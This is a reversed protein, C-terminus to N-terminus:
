GMEHCMQLTSGTRSKTVRLQAPIRARLEPVHSVIGVVRGGERLADLTDMVDDLTEADLSGFGEDVFLTGVHTGGAEQTVVDTLGLALALSVVFTEGGSLTVPDRTEGSWDDVVRLSLGGRSEGAGRRATHELTYRHDTMQVLRENAAAVVQGLRWSLVYASLRMQLSNDASKGEVLASLEAATTHERRLPAWRALAADLEARLAHVRGHRERRSRHASEALARADAAAEAANTLAPLDPAPLDAVAAVVPDELTATAAAHAREHAAVAEDHEEVLHDTLAAALAEDTSDFGSRELVASLDGTALEVARTASDAEQQADTVAQLRAVAEQRERVLSWVDPHGALHGVLDAALAEVREALASAAAAHAAQQARAASLEETSTLLDTRARECRARAGDLTDALPTLEGIRDRLALLQEEVGALDADEARSSLSTVQQELQRVRDDHAQRVVDADDVARRAAKESAATPAGPAPSAPHPHDCSGCVPCSAGVALATAIEAAMGGLRQEQLDLWHQRQAQHHDIARRLEHRATELDASVTAARQLLDRQGELRRLDIRAEGLLRLAEAAQQAAGEAAALDQPAREVATHLRTVLARSANAQEEARRLEGRLRRLEDERPQLAQARSLAERATALTGRVACTDESTGLLESAETMARRCTAVAAERRRTARTLQSHVLVVPQARRAQRAARRRSAIEDAAGTVTDLAERAAAHRSHLEAVRRAEALEATATRGTELVARLAALAEDVARQSAAGCDDAWRRLAGSE